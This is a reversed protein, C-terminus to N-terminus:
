LAWPRADDYLVPDADVSVHLHSSHANAGTYPRWAWPHVTSSVIRGRFIIYKIRPDRSAVLQDAIVRCDCGHAPDHTVDLATVVGAANPNHDSKGAAHAADGITGDHTRARTPAIADVQRLLQVLAAATRWRPGAPARPPAALHAGYVWGGGPTVYVWAGGGPQREQVEVREGTPLHGIIRYPEGPGSRVRLHPRATVVLQPTTM